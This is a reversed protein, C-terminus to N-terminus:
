LDRLGRLLNDVTEVEMKLRVEKAYAGIHPTLVVKECSLLPGQYPEQEFVDLAAACIRNEELAKLLGAEEVIEGRSTNVLFAGEKMIKLREYNILGRTQGSLSLHISVIDSLKLLSDLDCFEINYKRAFEYDKNIDYALYKLGFGRSLAVVERAIAGLGIIGLTKGKLLVGMEKVWVRNKLRCHQMSIKRLLDLILGITLEAVAPAPTTQSKYVRIGKSKAFELDINDMGSGLRSIVKLRPLKELVSASYRETGAVVAICDGALATIEREYLKRGYSNRIVEFGSDKLLRLPTSDFVAFTTPAILIKEPM